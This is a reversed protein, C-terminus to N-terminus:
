GCGRADPAASAGRAGVGACAAGPWSASRRTRPRGRRDFLDRREKLPDLKRFRKENMRAHMAGSATPAGHENHEIGPPSTTAARCGPIASRASAPNPAASARTTRSSARGDAAPARRRVPALHRDPRGDGQAARDGPRLPPDGADPLARRHQLGRGDDRLHRRRQDARAGAAGRRRPRLLRGPVPGVAREQHAHRDVPRRAARQRVGAAARRHTALGLMETKLSMGPGSTATMAKKGAFSAGVAAGIGAIEDEAQLVTGGYKWLERALFQMIETSPTIPYGGFFECGAFIAAAACMENGDALLKAAARGAGARGSRAAASAGAPARRTPSAPRSPASPEARPGGRGEQRFSAALGALLADPLLASGAPSCASCSPTRPRRRHGAAERAM